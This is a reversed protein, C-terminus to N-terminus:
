FRGRLNHDYGTLELYANGIEAGAENEVRCAGEWYAIGGIDGRLEQNAVRPSLIASWPKQTEPDVTRIRVRNPYSAGTAPSKWQALPEWEFQRADLHRVTGKRDIWALTSFPDTSGDSRRMRYAMIERGDALQISAWDWGVQGEGLQSSSFEHDFWAEGQVPSQKSDLTLQGTARLRPYTIYHSAASLEAAKRSVGNTGFLVRPKVPELTLELSTEPGVTGRLHFVESL